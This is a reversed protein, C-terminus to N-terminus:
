PVYVEAFSACSNLLLCSLNRSRMMEIAVVEGCYGFTLGAIELLYSDM